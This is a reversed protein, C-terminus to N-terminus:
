TRYKTLGLILPQIANCNPENSARSNQDKPVQSRCLILFLEVESQCDPILSKRHSNLPSAELNNAVQIKNTLSCVQM